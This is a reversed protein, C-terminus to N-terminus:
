CCPAKWGRQSELEWWWQIIKKSIAEARQQSVSGKSNPLVFLRLNPGMYVSLFVGLFCLIDETWTAALLGRHECM